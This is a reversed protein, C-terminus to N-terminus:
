FVITQNNYTLKVVWVSNDAGYKAVKQWASIYGYTLWLNNGAACIDPPTM